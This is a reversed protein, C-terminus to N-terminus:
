KRNTNELLLTEHQFDRWPFVLVASRSPQDRSMVTMDVSGPRIDRPYDRILVTVSGDDLGHFHSSPKVRSGLVRKWRQNTLQTRLHQNLETAKLFPVATRERFCVCAFNSHQQMQQIGDTKQRQQKPSLFLAAFALPDKTSGLCLMLSSMSLRGSLVCSSMLLHFLSRSSKVVVDYMYLGASVGM